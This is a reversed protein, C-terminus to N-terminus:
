KTRIFWRRGVKYCHRPVVGYQKCSRTFYSSFYGRDKIIDYSGRGLVLFLISMIEHKMIGRTGSARIINLIMWAISMKRPYSNKYKM